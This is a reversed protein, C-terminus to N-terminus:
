IAARKADPKKKNEQKFQFNEKNFKFASPITRTDCHVDSQLCDGVVDREPPPGCARRQSLTAFSAAQGM